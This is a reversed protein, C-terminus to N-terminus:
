TQTHTSIKKKKDKKTIKINCIRDKAIYDKIMHEIEQQKDAPINVIFYIVKIRPCMLKRGWPSLSQHINNKIYDYDIGELVFYDCGFANESINQHLYKLPDSDNKNFKLIQEPSKIIKGLLEEKNFNYSTVFIKGSPVSQQFNFFQEDIKSTCYHIELHGYKYKKIYTEM